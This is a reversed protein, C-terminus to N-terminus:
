CRVEECAYEAERPRGEPWRLNGFELTQHEHCHPCPVFYRRRDSAEYKLLAEEMGPEDEADAEADSKVPDDTTAPTEASNAAPPGDDARAPLVFAALIILFVAPFQKM